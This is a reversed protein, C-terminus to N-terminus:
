RTENVPGCSRRIKLETPILVTKSYERALREHEIIMDVSAYGIIKTKIRVSNLPPVMYKASPSDNFSLVSIDEPISLGAESIARYTGIAMADNSVLLATPRNKTKLMELTTTYAGKISFSCYQMLEEDYIEKSKMFTTYAKDRSDVFGDDERIPAGGIRAIRRHGLRYLYELATITAKELDCGVYDYNVESFDNDVIVVNDYQERLTQIVSNEIRGLILVGIENHSLKDLSNPSVTRVTYGCEEAHQEIGLRISLYYPDAIEQEYDYWYVLVIEKTPAPEVAEEVAKRNRKPTYDLEEAAKFINVRTEDAVNITADMNLVRSVTSVSVGAKEAIDRITAM